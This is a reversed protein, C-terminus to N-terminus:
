RHGYPHPTLIRRRVLRSVGCMLDNLSVPKILYCECGLARARDQVEDEARATLICIPVSATSPDEKLLRCFELGDMGPLTIDVIAMDPVQRQISRLAEDADPAMEVTYGESRLALELFDVTDADDEVVLVRATRSRDVHASAQDMPETKDQKRKVAPLAFVVTTGKGKRSELEVPCRHAELIRRVIALGLGTGEEKDQGKVFPEFARERIEEPM